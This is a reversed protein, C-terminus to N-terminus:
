GRREIMALWDADAKNAEYEAETIGHKRIWEARQEEATGPRKPREPSAPKQKLADFTPRVRKIEADAEAYTMARVRAEDWVEGPIATYMDELWEYQKPSLPKTRRSSFDDDYTSSGRVTGSVTVATVDPHCKTDVKPSVM